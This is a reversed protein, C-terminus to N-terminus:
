KSGVCAKMNHVKVLFIDWLGRCCYFFVDPKPDSFPESGRPTDEFVMMVMEAKTKM